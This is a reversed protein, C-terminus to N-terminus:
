RDLKYITANTNPPLIPIFWIIILIFTPCSIEQIGIMECFSYILINLNITDIIFSCISWWLVAACLIKLEIEHNAGFKWRYNMKYVILGKLGQVPRYTLLFIPPCFNVDGDSGQWMPVRSMQFAKLSMWSFIRTLNLFNSCQRQQPGSFLQAVGIDHINPTRGLGAM